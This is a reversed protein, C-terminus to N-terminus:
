INANKKRRPRTGTGTGMNGDHSTISEKQRCACVRRDPSSLHSCFLVRFFSCSLRFPSCTPVAPLIPFSSSFLFTYCFVSSFPMNFGRRSPFADCTMFFTFSLLPFLLCFSTLSCLYCFLGLYLSAFLGPFTVLDLFCCLLLFLFSPFVFSLISFYLYERSLEVWPVMGTVPPPYLIKRGWHSFPFHQPYFVLTSLHCGCFLADLLTGWLAFFSPPRGQHAKQTLDVVMRASDESASLFCEALGHSLLFTPSLAFAKVLPRRRCSFVFCIM